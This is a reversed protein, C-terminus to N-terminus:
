PQFVLDFLGSPKESTPEMAKHKSSYYSGSGVVLGIALMLVLITAFPNTTTPNSSPERIEM